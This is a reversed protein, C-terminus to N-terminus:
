LSEIQKVFLDAVAGYSLNEEIFKRPLLNLSSNDACLFDQITIALDEPDISSCVAANSVKLRSSFAARDSVIAPVGLALAEFLAIGFSEWRSPMVFFDAKQIFKIKDDGEIPGGVQVIDSLGFKDALSVVEELTNTSNRGRLYIPIRLSAPIRSYADFLLDLGKHEIDYRGFWAIYGGGGEWRMDQPIEIPTPAVVIPVDPAIESISPTETDIFAHVATSRKIIPIEFNLWLRKLSYKRQRAAHDYAGHPVFIVKAGVSFANLAAILNCALFASHVILVSDRSLYSRIGLPYLWRGNLRHRIGIASVGEVILPQDAIQSIDYIVSVDHGAVKLAKAWSWVAVTVGGNGM